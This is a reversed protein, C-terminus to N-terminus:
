GRSPRRTGPATECFGQPNAASRTPAALRPVGGPAPGAYAALLRRAEGCDAAIQARLAALDDFKKEPRLYDILAVRLHRGYLDGSWDFLHVEFVLHTGGVTPRYGFSAVGDRWVTG